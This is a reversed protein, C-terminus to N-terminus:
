KSLSASLLGLIRLYLALIHVPSCLSLLKHYLAWTKQVPSQSLPLHMGYQHQCCVCCLAVHVLAWADGYCDSLVQLAMNSSIVICPMTCGKVSAVGHILEISTSYYRVFRYLDWIRVQVPCDPSLLVGKGDNFLNGCFWTNVLKSTHLPKQCLVYVLYAETMESQKGYGIQIICTAANSYASSWPYEFAPHM